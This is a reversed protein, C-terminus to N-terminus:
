DVRAKWQTHTVSRTELRADTVAFRPPAGCAAQFWANVAPSWVNRRCSVRTTKGTKSIHARPRVTTEGAVATEEVAEVVSPTAVVRVFITATGEMPPPAEPDEAM